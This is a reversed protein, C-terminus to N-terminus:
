PIHQNRTWSLYNVGDVNGWHWNDPVDSADLIEHPLPMTVHTPTPIEPRIIENGHFFRHKPKTEEEVTEVELGPLFYEVEEVVEEKQAGKGGKVPLSWTDVPTAFHCDTEVAINNIGRVVRFFGNEGFHEGWSNRIKWFKVGNEVGYGVISVDHVIETDNTLDHFIGGTYNELADPVAIGCAVPGRQHIENM